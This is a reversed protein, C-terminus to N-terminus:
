AAHARDGDQAVAKRVSGRGDSLEFPRGQPNSWLRVLMYDSDLDGYKHPLYDGTCRLWGADAPV